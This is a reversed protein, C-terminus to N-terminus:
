PSAFPPGAALTTVAVEERYHPILKHNTILRTLIQSAQEYNNESEPLKSLNTSLLEGRQNAICALQFQSDDFFENDQPVRDLSGRRRTSIRPPATAIM